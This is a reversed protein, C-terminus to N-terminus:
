VREGVTSDVFINRRRFPPPSHTLLYLKLNELDCGFVPQELAPIERTWSPARKGKKAAAYEVMAAIYNAPYPPLFVQPPQEVMREFEDGGAANLLDHIEALVYQPHPSNKLQGLLEQFAGQQSSLAKSLVWESVGMKAKHAQRFIAAKEKLSVRIQLQLIKNNRKMLNLM